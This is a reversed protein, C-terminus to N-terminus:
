VNKRYKCKCVAIIKCLYLMKAVFLAAPIFNRPKPAILIPKFQWYPQLHQDFHSIIQRKPLFQKVKGRELM